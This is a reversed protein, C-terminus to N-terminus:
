AAVFWAGSVAAPQVGALALTGTGGFVILADGNAGTEVTFTQGATLGTRDGQGADFDTITDNGAGGDLRDDESTSGVFLEPRGSTDYVLRADYWIDRTSTHFTTRGAASGGTNLPTRSASLWAQIASTMTSISAEVSPM